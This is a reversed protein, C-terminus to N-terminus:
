SRRDEFVIAAAYWNLKKALWESDNAIFTSMAKM